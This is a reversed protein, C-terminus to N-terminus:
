NNQICGRMANQWVRNMEELEEDTPEERPSAEAMAAAVEAEEDARIEHDGTWDRCM